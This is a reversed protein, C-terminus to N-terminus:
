LANLDKTCYNKYDKVVNTCLTSNGFLIVKDLYHRLYMYFLKFTVLYFCITLNINLHRQLSVHQFTEPCALIDAM